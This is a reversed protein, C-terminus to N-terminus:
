NLWSSISSSSVQVTTKIIKGKGGTSGAAWITVQESDVQVYDFGSMQYLENLCKRNFCFLVECGTDIDLTWTEGRQLSFSNTFVLFSFYGDYTVYVGGVRSFYDGGLAYGFTENFFVVNRIPWPSNLLRDSWTKGGDEM